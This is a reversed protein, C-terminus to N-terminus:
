VARALRSSAKHAYMRRDALQLAESASTADDPIIAIGLSSSITFASRRETLAAAARAVAQSHRAHRGRLLVCFEDGGLRYARGGAAVAADLAAGIRVLLADGATHGFTDNYQKFGNLDFFVLTSPCEHKAQEIAEQLDEMLCRRNGLGSLGDTIVDHASQRLMRVNEVDTLLTRLMTVLLALGGLAVALPMVREFAATILLGLAAVGSLWPMAITAPAVVRSAGRRKAPQWAALAVLSMSAPWLTDLIGGPVYTGRAAQYVFLLDAIASAAFGLGLSMWARGPRWGHLAFAVVVFALVTFDGVPYALNVAAEVFRGKGTAVVTPLVLAFAIAALTLSVVAGDLWQAAAAHRLRSRLMLMLAAYVAPYMAVYLLDAVSPYPPQAAYDLWVLWILDGGAWLVLGITMLIWAWRDDRRRLARMGCMAVSTLEVALYVCRRAPTDGVSGGLGFLAHAALFAVGAGM